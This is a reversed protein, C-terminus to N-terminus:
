FFEIMINTSKYYPKIISELGYYLPHPFYIKVEFIDQM